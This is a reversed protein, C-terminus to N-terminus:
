CQTPNTCAPADRGDGIDDEIDDLMDQTDDNFDDIDDDDELMRAPAVVERDAAPKANRQALWRDFYKVVRMRDFHEPTMALSRDMPGNVYQPFYADRLKRM